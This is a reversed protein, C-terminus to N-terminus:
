KNATSVAGLWQPLKRKLEQLLSALSKNLQEAASKAQAMQLLDPTETEKLCMDLYSELQDADQKVNMAGISGAAGKLTHALMLVDPWDQSAIAAQMNANTSQHSEYFIEMVKLYLEDRGMMYQLGQEHDIQTVDTFDLTSTATTSLPKANQMRQVKHDLWRALSAFLDDPQVPKPLFDQMGEDLCQQRVDSMAHATMAVIPIHNLQISRRIIKTAEHGDMGPMELDMFILDYTDVPANQLCDIAEQGSKAIAVTIGVTALLEVAIQQNVENDEVLLVVADPYTHQSVAVMHGMQRVQTESCVTFPLTFAFTSGQGYVSMVEISGGLLEVLQRSISLGLGTGGFKRSTSSDAQSFAAFLKEVQAPTMGIGTDQIVFRLNVIANADTNITDRLELSIKVQGQETFKIANNVINILIQGLRMADGILFKPVNRPLDLQLLLGKEQAKQATVTNLHAFVEDIAFPSFDVDMKGAEIKSFDLISNIIGLLANGATHIKSLYDRQKQSLDTRLALYALGIIANMPTRIEHSMNALFSSKAENALEALERAKLEAAVKEALTQQHIRQGEAQLDQDLLTATRVISRIEDPRYQNFDRKGGMLLFGTLQGRHTFPTLIANEGGVGNLSYPIRSMLMRALDGGRAQITHPAESLDGAIKSCIGARNIYVAASAGGAYTSLAKMYHQLLAEQGVMNAAHALALQLAEEQARWKPYLWTRVLQEAISRLPRYLAIVLLGCITDFILTQWREIPNLMPMFAIQLGALTAALGITV